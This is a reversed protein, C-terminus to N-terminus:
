VRSLELALENKRGVPTGGRIELRFGTKWLSLYSSYMSYVVLCPATDPTVSLRGRRKEQTYYLTGLTTSVRAEKTLFLLDTTARTCRADRSYKFPMSRVIKSQVTICIARPQLTPCLYHITQVAVNNM